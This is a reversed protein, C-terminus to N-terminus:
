VTRATWPFSYRRSARPIIAWDRPVRSLPVYSLTRDDLKMEHLFEVHRDWVYAPSQLVFPLAFLAVTMAALRGGLQRPTVLVCLLGVALPYVKLWGAFALWTAATWWHQRACAVVGCLVGAVIMLNIQGNNFAPLILVAAIVWFWARRWPSLPPLLDRVLGRVGLLYPILCALRWVIAAAKPHLVTLPAFLAAVGPPNRYLDYGPIPPYLPASDLWREAGTLYIPIVSQKIPQQLLVRAFVGVILATWIGVAFLVPFSLGRRSASTDPRSEVVDVRGVVLTPTSHEDTLPDTM